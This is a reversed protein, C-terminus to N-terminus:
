CRGRGAARAGCREVAGRAQLGNTAGKSDDGSHGSETGELHRPQIHADSERPRIPLEQRVKKDSNMEKDKWVKQQMKERASHDGRGTAKVTKEHLRKQM